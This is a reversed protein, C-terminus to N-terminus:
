DEEFALPEDEYICDLRQGKQGDDGVAIRLEEVPQPKVNVRQIVNFVEIENAKSAM